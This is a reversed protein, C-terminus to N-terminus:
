QRALRHCGSSAEVRRVTPSRHAAAAVAATVAHAVADARDVDVLVLASGGFGAGTLRAGLAGAAVAAEVVADLAPTSVAFDDRLSAHSATLLPGVDLISGARLLRVAERVRANETVVHRARARLLPNALLALDAVDVVDRLERVGLLRAAEACQAVRDAYGSGATAHAKGTDVVLLALGADDLALPVPEWAHTRTDISLARGPQGHMVAMPDMLGVPAGVFENEVRRATTAVRQADWETGALDLLACLTACVLSASSSMGAGIPLDGDIAVDAGGVSIGQRALVWACGAVYSTWSDHGPALEPLRLTRSGAGPHSSTCSLLDDDRPRVTATTGLQVALPLM